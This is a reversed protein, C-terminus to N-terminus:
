IQDWPWGMAETFSSLHFVCRVAMGYGGHYSDENTVFYASDYALYSPRERNLNGRFSRSYYFGAYNRRDWGIIAGEPWYFGGRIFVLGLTATDGNTLTGSGEDLGYSGSLLNPSLGQSVGFGSGKQFVANIGLYSEHSSIRYFLTANNATSTSSYMQRGQQYLLANYDIYHGSRHFGITLIATDANSLYSGEALGYSGSLLYPFPKCRVLMGNSKGLANTNYYFIDRGYVALALSPNAGHPTAIWYSGILNYYRADALGGDWYGGRRLNFITGLVATDANTLNSGVALGYSGSLLNNFSVYRVSWGRAKAVNATVSSFSSPSFSLGTVNINGLAINAWYHGYGSVSGTTGFNYQFFGSRLFGIAM